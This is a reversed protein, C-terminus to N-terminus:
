LYNYIYKINTIQQGNWKNNWDANERNKFLIKLSANSDNLNNQNDDVFVWDSLDIKSKDELGELVGVFEFRIDSTLINNKLFQKKM